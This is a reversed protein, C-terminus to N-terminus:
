YGGPLKGEHITIYNKPFIGCRIGAPTRIEGEWWEAHPQSILHIIDGKKFSLENDVESTFDYLAKCKCISDDRHPQAGRMNQQVPKMGNDKHQHAAGPMDGLGNNDLPVCPDTLKIEQTRSVSNTRHYEVLDNLSNFKVVWLFYKGSQDTLIKFHQIANQFKVSLSFNGPDPNSESDRIMFAGDRPMAMLHDEALKRTIKGVYWGHSREVTVYNEPILGQRAGLHALLWHKDERRIVKLIANKKFPLEDEDATCFDYLAKYEM